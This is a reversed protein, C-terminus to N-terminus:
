FLRNLSDGSSDKLTYRPTALNCIVFILPLLHEKTSQLYVKKSNEHRNVHKISFYQVKQRQFETEFTQPYVSTIAIQLNNGSKLRKVALKVFHDFLSLCNTQLKSVFQKPTNSWKTPNTSSTNLVKKNYWTAMSILNQFHAM